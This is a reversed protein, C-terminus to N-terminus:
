ENILEKEYSYPLSLCMKRDPIERCIMIMFDRTHELVAPMDSALFNGDKLIGVILPSFIRASILEEPNYDSIAVIAGSEKIRKIVKQM